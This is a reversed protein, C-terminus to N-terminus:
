VRHLHWSFMDTLEGRVQDRLGAHEGLQFIWIICMIIVIFIRLVDFGKQCVWHKVDGTEGSTQGVCKNVENDEGQHFLAWVLYVGAAIIVLTNM